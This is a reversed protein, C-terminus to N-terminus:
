DGARNAGKKATARTRQGKEGKEERETGTGVLTGMM